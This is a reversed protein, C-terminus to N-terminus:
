YVLIYGINNLIMIWFINYLSIPHFCITTKRIHFVMHNM